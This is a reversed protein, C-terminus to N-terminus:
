IDILSDVPCDILILVEHYSDAVFAINGVTQMFLSLVFSTFALETRLQNQDEIQCVIYCTIEVFMGEEFSFFTSCRRESIAGAAGRNGMSTIWM